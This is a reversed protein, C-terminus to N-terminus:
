RSPAVAEAVVAAPAAVALSTAAAPATSARGAPAETSTHGIIDWGCVPRARRRVVTGKTAFLTSHTDHRPRASGRSKGQRPRYDKRTTDQGWPDYGHTETSM